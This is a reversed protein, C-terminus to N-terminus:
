STLDLWRRLWDKAISLGNDLRKTWSASKKGYSFIRRQLLGTSFLMINYLALMYYPVLYCTNKTYNSLKNCQLCDSNPEIDFLSKQGGAFIEACIALRADKTYTRATQGSTARGFMQRAINQDRRQVTRWPPTLSEAPTSQFSFGQSIIQLRSVNRGSGPHCHMPHIQLWSNEKESPLCVGNLQMNDRKSQIRKIDVIQRPFRQCNNVTELTM